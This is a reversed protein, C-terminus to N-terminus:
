VGEKLTAAFADCTRRMRDWAQGSELSGDGKLDHTLRYAACDEVVKRGAERLASLRAEAKDARDNHFDIWRQMSEQTLIRGAEAATKEKEAGALADLLQPVAEALRYDITALHMPLASKREECLARMREVLARLDSTKDSM